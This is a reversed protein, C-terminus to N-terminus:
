APPRLFYRVVLRGDSLIQIDSGNAVLGTDPALKKWSAFIRDGANFNLTDAFTWNTDPSTIMDDVTEYEVSRVSEPPVDSLLDDLPYTGTGTPVVIQFPKTAPIMVWYFGETLVQSYAGTTDDTFTRIRRGTVVQGAGDIPATTLLFDIPTSVAPAESQLLLIGAVTAM